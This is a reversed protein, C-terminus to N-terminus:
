FHDVRAFGEGVGEVFRAGEFVVGVHLARGDDFLANREPVVCFPLPRRERRETNHATPGDFARFARDARTRHPETWSPCFFM